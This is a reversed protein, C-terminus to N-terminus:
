HLVLSCDKHCVLRIKFSHTTYLCKLWFLETQVTLDVSTSRVKHMDNIQLAAMEWDSKPVTTALTVSFRGYATSHVLKAPWLIPLRHDPACSLNPVVQIGDHPYANMTSHMSLGM